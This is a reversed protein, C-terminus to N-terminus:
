NEKSQRTIRRIETLKDTGGKDRVNFYVGFIRLIFGSILRYKQFHFIWCGISSLSYHRLPTYSIGIRLKM